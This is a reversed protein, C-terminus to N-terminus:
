RQQELLRRYRERDQDMQWGPDDEAPQWAWDDDLRYPLAGSVLDALVEELWHLETTLKRGWLALMRRAHPPGLDEAATTARPPRPQQGAPPPEPLGALHEQLAQRRRELAPVAEDGALPLMSFAASFGRSDYLTVTELGERLLRSLEAQGPAALEYVSVDRTGDVVEHRVLLGREALSSLGHYISGPRVNAWQDIQWSVLERRIQYGNVPGFMAVAGLLLMRTVNVAM